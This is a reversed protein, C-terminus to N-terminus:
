IRYKLLNKINLATFIVLFTSVKYMCAESNLRRSPNKEHFRIIRKFRSFIQHKTRFGEFDQEADGVCLTSAFWGM